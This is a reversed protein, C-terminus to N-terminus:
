RCSGEAYFDIMLEIGNWDWYLPRMVKWGSGSETALKSGICGGVIGGFWCGIGGVGVAAIGRLLRRGGSRRLSGEGRRRWFHVGM